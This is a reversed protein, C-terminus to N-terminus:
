HLGTRRPSENAPFGTWKAGTLPDAVRSTMDFSRPRKGDFWPREVDVVSYKIDFSVAWPMDVGSDHPPPTLHTVIKRFFDVFMFLFIDVGERTPSSGQDRGEFRPLAAPILTHM